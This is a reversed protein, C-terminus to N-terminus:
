HPRRPTYRVTGDPARTVLDARFAADLAAPGYGMWAFAEDVDTIPEIQEDTASLRRVLLAKGDEAPTVDLLETATFRRHYLNRGRMGYVRSIECFARVDGADLDTSLVVYTGTMPEDASQRPYDHVVRGEDDRYGVPYAPHTGRAGPEVPMPTGSCHPIDCSLRRDGDEVVVFSHLDVRDDVVLRDLGVRCRAGAGELIAAMTSTHGWCTGGLGTELWQRAFAAGPMPDGTRMAVSKAIADFPVHEAWARYLPAVDDLGRPRAVGLRTCLEDALEDPISFREM